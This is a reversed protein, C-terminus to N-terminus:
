WKAWSKWFLNNCKSDILFHTLSDINDCYICKSDPKVKINKLWENCLLARHIINYQFTQISTHRSYNFPMKFSIKWFTNDKFKFKSYIIEWATSAILMHTSNNWTTNITTKMSGKVMVSYQVKVMVSRQIRKCSLAIPGKLLWKVLISCHTM